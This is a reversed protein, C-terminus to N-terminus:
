EDDSYIVYGDDDEGTKDMIKVPLPKSFILWPPQHFVEVPCFQSLCITTTMEWGDKTKKMHSLNRWLQKIHGNTRRLVIVLM